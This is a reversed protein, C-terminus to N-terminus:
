IIKRIDERVHTPDPPTVFDTVRERVRASLEAQQLSKKKNDRHIASVKLTSMEVSMLSEIRNSSGVM